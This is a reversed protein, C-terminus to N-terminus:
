VCKLTHCTTALSTLSYPNSLRPTTLPYASLRKSAQRRRHHTDVVRPLKGIRKAAGLDALQGNHVILHTVGKIECTAIKNAM